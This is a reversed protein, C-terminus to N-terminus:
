KPPSTLSEPQSLSPSIATTQSPLPTSISATAEQVPWVAITTPTQRFSSPSTTETRAPRPKSFPFGSILAVIIPVVIAAVVAWRAWFLTKNGVGMAESHQKKSQNSISRLETESRLLAIRAEATRIEKQFGAGWQYHVHLFYRYMAELTEPSLSALKDPTTDEVAKWFENIDAM